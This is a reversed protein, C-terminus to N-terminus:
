RIPATSERVLLRPEIRLQVPASEQIKGEIKDILIQCAKEGIQQISTEVTTLPPDLVSSLYVGEYGGVSVDEPIRLGLKKLAIYVSSATIDNAVFLATPRDAATLWAVFERNDSLINESNMQKVHYHLHFPVISREGDDLGRENLARRYGKIRDLVESSRKLKAGYVFGIRRHGLDLLHKTMMYGGLEDDCVVYDCDLDRFYKTYLVFPVGEAKLKRYNASVLSHFALFGDVMNNKYKEIYSSELSPSAMPGVFITYGRSMAYPVAGHIIQNQYDDHFPASVLLALTNTKGNALSKAMHNPVYGLESAVEKVKRVTEESISGEGRMALSAAMKSIGVVKAIDELKVRKKM